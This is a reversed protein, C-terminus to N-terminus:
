EAAITVRIVGAAAPYVYGDDVMRVDTDPDATGSNAAAQRPAQDPGAGPWQNMETGADWLNVMATVNGEVPDGQADFLALSGDGFGYFLDNSQGFMSGFSLRDGEGATFAFTCADGPFIPGAAAAGDPVTFVGASSVDDLTQLYGVLAGPDADEALAELGHGGNPQGDAYMFRGAAHVAYAGPALPTVVGTRPALAAALGAPNGDEAVHELGEGRDTMDETFLPATGAHVAYVGPALPVALSPGSSPSLTASDSVNEIRVTFEGGGEPTVVVQIVDSVAPYAYGDDVMRVTDDPDAAGANAGSQRPAQDMGLGPEQNAETGADWLRVQDTVDGDLPASKAGYLAIGGGGPAYFLDNSHVFMTAFSLRDGPAAGVRFEYAQGPGIPGPTDAGVPTDFAGSTLCDRADSVNAVTVTFDATSTSPGAGDDSCGAVAALLLLVPWPSRISTKTFM